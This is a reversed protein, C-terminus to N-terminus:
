LIYLKLWPEVLTITSIGIPNGRARAGEIFKIVKRSLRPDDYLYWIVTHTDAVASIMLYRGQPLKGM